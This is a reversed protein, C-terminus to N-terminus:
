EGRGKKIYNYVTAISVRYKRALWDVCDSKSGVPAADFEEIMRQAIKAKRIKVKPSLEM